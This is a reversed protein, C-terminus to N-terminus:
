ERIGVEAIVPVFFEKLREMEDRSFPTLKAYAPDLTIGNRFTQLFFRKAGTLTEKMAELVAPSHREKVLTARFEYEVAGHKLITMSAEIARPDAQKGALNPYEELSTKMDMAVYDLLKADLLKRLVAPKNGNTDIKVLFGLSKVAQIFRELDPQITPEGGTIVVGDLRGQRERLFGFFAEEDIFSERIQCLREPLVFEPNHCYGCRFNCGPTFVICATHGPYDLLTLQTVGSIQM